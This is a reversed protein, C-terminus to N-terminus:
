EVELQDLSRGLAITTAARDTPSPKSTVPAVGQRQQNFEAAKRLWNTFGTNWNKLRRHKTEASQRFRQYERKVDLHLSAAKDIHTQNPRWDAPILHGRNSANADSLPKEIENSISPVPRSPAMANGDVSSLLKGDSKGDNQSPEQSWRAKAGRRGFEARKRSLEDRKEKSSASPPQYNSWDHFEFGFTKGDPKGDWLGADVLADADATEHGLIRVVTASVFGDTLHQACYSGARVWLAIASPPLEIVKPHSWFGDDVKFWPL